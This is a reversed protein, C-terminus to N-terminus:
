RRGDRECRGGVRPEDTVGAFRRQVSQCILEALTDTKLSQCLDLYRAQPTSQSVRVGQHHEALLKDVFAQLANVPIRRSRGITVSPLVGKYVLEHAKTRGLGLREAAEEVRLLGRGAGNTPRPQSAREWRSRSARSERDVDGPRLHKAELFRAQLNM